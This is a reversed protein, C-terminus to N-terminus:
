STEGRRTLPDVRPPSGPPADTSEAEDDRTREELLTGLGSANARILVAFAMLSTRSGTSEYMACEALWEERYRDRTGEPLQRAASRVLARSIAVTPGLRAPRVDALLVAHESLHIRPARRFLHGLSKSDGVARAESLLSVRAALQWRDPVLTVVLMAIGAFVLAVIVTPADTAALLAASALTFLWIAALTRWRIARVIDSAPGVM